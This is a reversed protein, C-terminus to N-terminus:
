PRIADCVGPYRQQMQAVFRRVGPKTSQDLRALEARIKGLTTPSLTRPAARDFHSTPM